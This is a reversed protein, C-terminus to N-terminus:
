VFYTLFWLSVVVASDFDLLRAAGARAVALSLLGNDPGVFFQGGAAVVIARRLTGVGPDVVAVHVTGAPFRGAAAALVYAGTAVDRAPVDHTIDVIEARCRARLAARMEAPYPSSAGFDSLLTVTTM